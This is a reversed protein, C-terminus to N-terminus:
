EVPLRERWEDHLWWKEILQENRYKLKRVVVGNESCTVIEKEWGNTVTITDTTGDDYQQYCTTKMCPIIQTRRKM